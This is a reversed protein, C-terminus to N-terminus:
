FFRRRSVRRARQGRGGVIFRRRLWRDLREGFARRPADFVSRRTELPMEFCFDELDYFRKM